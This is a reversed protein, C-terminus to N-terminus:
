RVIPKPLKINIPEFPFEIEYSVVVEELPALDYYYIIFKEGAFEKMKVGETLPTIKEAGFPIKDIVVGRVRRNSRNSIILTVLIKNGKIKYDKKVRVRKGFYYYAFGVISVGTVLGILFYNTFDFRLRFEKTINPPDVENVCFEPNTPICFSVKGPVNGFTKVKINVNVGLLGTKVDYFVLYYFYPPTHYTFEKYFPKPTGEIKVRIQHIGPKQPLNYVVCFPPVFSSTKLQNDIWIKYTVQKKYQGEVCLKIEQKDILEATITLNYTKNEEKVEEVNEVITKNTPKEEYVVPILYTKTGITLPFFKEKQTPYAIVLLETVNGKTVTVFQPLNAIWDVSTDVVTTETANSLLYLKLKIPNDKGAVIDIPKYYIFIM